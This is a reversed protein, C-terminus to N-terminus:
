SMSAPIVANICRVDKNFYSIIHGIVCRSILTICSSPSTFFFCESVQIQAILDLEFLDLTRM